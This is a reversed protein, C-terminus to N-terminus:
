RGSGGKTDGNGIMPLEVYVSAGGEPNNEAHASGGQRQLAQRALGLGLGMGRQKTSYSFEFIREPADAPLGCGHDRVTIRCKEGAPSSGVREARVEIVEGLPSAEIANTVMAVLAQELTAPDHICALGEEPAAVTLKLEKATVEAALADRVRELTPVVNMNQAPTPREKAVEMLGAIWHNMRDVSAILEEMRQRTEPVDKQHRATLQATARISALPNRLNHALQAAFQGITTLRESDILQQRMARLSRHARDLAEALAAMERPSTLLPERPSEDRALAEVQRGLREMPRLLWRKILGAIVAVHLVTLVLVVSLLIQKRLEQLSAEGQLRLLNEDVLQSYMLLAGRVGPAQEAADEAPASRWRQFRLSLTILAQRLDDVNRYDAVESLKINQGALLNEFDGGVADTLPEGGRPLVSQLKQAGLAIDGLPQLAGYIRRAAELEFIAVGVTAASLLVVILYVLLLRHRLTM